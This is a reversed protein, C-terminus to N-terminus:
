KNSQHYLFRGCEIYTSAEGQHKPFVYKYLGLHANPSKRTTVDVDIKGQDILDQVLHNFKMFKNMTHGKICYCNCYDNDKYWNPKPKSEDFPQTQPYVLMNHSQMKTCSCKVFLLLGHLYRPHFIFHIPIYSEIIFKQLWNHDHFTIFRITRDFTRITTIPVM